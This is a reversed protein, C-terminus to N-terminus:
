LRKMSEIILVNGVCKGSLFYFYIKAAIKVISGYPIKEASGNESNLYFENGDSIITYATVVKKLKDFEPYNYRKLPEFIRLDLTGKGCGTLRGSFTKEIIGISDFTTDTHYVSYIQLTEGDDFTMKKSFNKPPIPSLSDIILVNYIKEQGAFFSYISVDANAYNIELIDRNKTGYGLFRCPVTEIEMEYDYKITKIKQYEKIDIKKLLAFDNEDVWGRDRGFLLIDVTKRVWSISDISSDPDVNSCVNMLDGDNFRVPLCGETRIVEKKGSYEIKNKNGGRCLIIISFLLCIAIVNTKNM